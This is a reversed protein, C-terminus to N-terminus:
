QTLKEDHAMMALRAPCVESASLSVSSDTSTMACKLGDFGVLGDPM